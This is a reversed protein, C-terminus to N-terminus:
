YLPCKGTGGALGYSRRGEGRPAKFAQQEDAMASTQRTPLVASLALQRTYIQDSLNALSTAM